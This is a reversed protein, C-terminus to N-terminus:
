HIHHVLPHEALDFTKIKDLLEDLSPAATLFGEDTLAVWQGRFHSENKDLWRYARERSRKKGNSPVTRAPPLTLLRNLRELEPHDPFRSHGEAATRQARTPSANDLLTQIAQVFEEPTAPGQVPAKREIMPVPEDEIQRAHRAGM